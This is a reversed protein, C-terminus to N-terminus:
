KIVFENSYFKRNEKFNEKIKCGVCAPIAMRHIGTELPPLTTEFFKSQRPEVCVQNLDPTQCVSYSYSEFNSNKRELYYPYCSSFCVNKRSDNQITVKLAGDSNYETKDTSILLKLTNADFYWQWLLSLIAAVLLSSVILIKNNKM